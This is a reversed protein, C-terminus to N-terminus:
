AADSAFVCRQLLNLSASSSPLYKSHDRSTHEQALGGLGRHHTASLGGAFASAPLLDSSCVSAASRFQMRQQPHDCSECSRWPLELPELCGDLGPHAFGIRPPRICALHEIGPTSFEKVWPGVHQPSLMERRTPGM